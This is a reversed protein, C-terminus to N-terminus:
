QPIIIWDSDKTIRKEHSSLNNFEILNKYLHILIEKDTKIIGYFNYQELFNLVGGYNCKIYKSFTNFRKNNNLKYIKTKHNLLEILKNLSLTKNKSESLIDIFTLHIIELCKIESINWKTSNNIM